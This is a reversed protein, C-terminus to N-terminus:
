LNIQIIGTIMNPKSLENNEKNNYQFINEEKSSSKIHM